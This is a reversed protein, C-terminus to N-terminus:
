VKLRTLSATTAAAHLGADDASFDGSNGLARDRSVYWILVFSQRLLVARCYDKERSCDLPINAPFIVASTRSRLVPENALKTPSRSTYAPTSLLRKRGNM